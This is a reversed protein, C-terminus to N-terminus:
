LKMADVRNDQQPFLVKQGSWEERRMWGLVIYVLKTELAFRLAFV